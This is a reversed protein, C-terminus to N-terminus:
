KLLRSWKHRLFDLLIQFTQKSATASFTLGGLFAHTTMKRVQHTRQCVLLESFEQYAQCWQAVKFSVNVVADLRHTIVTHTMKDRMPYDDAFMAITCCYGEGAGCLPLLFTNKPFHIIGGEERIVVTSTDKLPINLRWSSSSSSGCYSAANQTQAFTVWLTCSFAATLTCPESSREKSFLAKFLCHSM